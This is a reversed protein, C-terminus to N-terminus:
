LVPVVVRFGYSDGALGNNYSFYFVGAGSGVNCVGGRIFFPGATYPFYTDDLYWSTSGTGSSSTEYVADGYKSSTAAYNNSYSDSSGKSYVDKYKAAANVLNSGYTTLNSHGNNVYAAVKDYAGGSM